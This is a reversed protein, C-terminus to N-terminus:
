QLSDAVQLLIKLDVNNGSLAYIIDDRQWLIVANSGRNGAKRVEELLLGPSGDVTVERFRAVDTPLPIVATSTWDITQALRRADAAPVGLFRLAIAGFADLDLGAPLAVQPSAVQILQLTGAGLRYEQTVIMPVDVDVTVKEIEPLTVGQVQAADLLAQLTARDMEYHVAPGVAVSIRSFAIGESLSVPARVPFGVRAAAEAVDAVIEPEGPERVFTPQGFVGSDALKAVEELRQTQAQDIPIVAFKRVRFLSLFDATAQRVPAFSFLIALCLLATVGITIPRWKGFLLTQKTMEFSRKLTTWLGAPNELVRQTQVRFQALAQAPAPVEHAQPELAALRATMTLSRQRLAALEQRCAPCGDLHAAVAAQAAPPLAADLYARLLGTECKM